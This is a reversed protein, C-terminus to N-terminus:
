INITENETKIEIRNSGYYDTYVDVATIKSNLLEPNNDAVYDLIYRIFESVTM